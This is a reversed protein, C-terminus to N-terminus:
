RCWVHSLFFAGLFRSASDVGESLRKRLLIRRSLRGSELLGGLLQSRRTRDEGNKKSRPIMM